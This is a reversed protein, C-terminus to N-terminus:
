QIVKDARQLLSRPITLGIAKATRLNIMGSCTGLDCRGSGHWRLIVIRPGFRGHARAAFIATLAGAVRADEVHIVVRDIAIPCVQFRPLFSL